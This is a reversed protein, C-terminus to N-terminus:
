LEIIYNSGFIMIEDVSIFIGSQRIFHVRYDYSTCIDEDYNILNGEQSVDYISLGDLGQSFFLM